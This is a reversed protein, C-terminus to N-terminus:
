YPHGGGLPGNERTRLRAVGNEASHPAEVRTPAAADLGGPMSVYGGHTRVPSRCDLSRDAASSSRRLPRRLIARGIGRIGAAMTASMSAECEGASAADAFGDAMTLGGREM